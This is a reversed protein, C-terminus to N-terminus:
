VTTAIEDYKDEERIFTPVLSKMINAVKAEDENDVAKKLIKLDRDLNEENINIPKGIFIPSRIYM